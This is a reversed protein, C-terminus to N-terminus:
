EGEVSCQVEEEKGDNNVVVRRRRVICTRVWIEVPPHQVHRPYIPEMDDMHGGAVGYTVPTSDRLVIFIHSLSGIRQRM